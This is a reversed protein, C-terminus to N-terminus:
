FLVKLLGFYFEKDVFCIRGRDIIKRKKKMKKENEKENEKEKKKEKRKKSLFSGAFM